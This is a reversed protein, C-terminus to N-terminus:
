GGTGRGDGGPWAAGRGDRLEGLPRGREIWERLDRYEVQRRGTRSRPVARALERISSHDSWEIYVRDGLAPAPGARRVVDCVPPPGAIATSAFGRAALLVSRSGFPGGALLSSRRESGAVRSQSRRSPRSMSVSTSTAPSRWSVPM